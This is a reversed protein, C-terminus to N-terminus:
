IFNCNTKITSSYRDLLEMYKSSTDVAESSITSIYPAILSDMSTFKQSRGEIIHLLM